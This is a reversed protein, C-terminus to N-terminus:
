NLNCFNGGVVVLVAVVAVGFGVVVVVDVVVDVVVVVVVVAVVVAIGGDSLAVIDDFVDVVDLAAVPKSGVGVVTGDNDGVGVELKVVCDSTALVVVVDVVVLLWDITAGVVIDLV